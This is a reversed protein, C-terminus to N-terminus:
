EMSFSQTLDNKEIADLRYKAQLIGRVRVLLSASPM